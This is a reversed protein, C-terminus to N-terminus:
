NKLMELSIELNGDTQAPELRLLHALLPYLDIVEIVHHKHGAKFSPGFAYFIGHMDMEHPDYGHAGGTFRTSDGVWGISWTNDALILIDLTRPNRGFHLNTPIESSRWATLNPLVSLAALISDKKGEAAQVIIAPNGGHARIVWEEKIHKSLDIYRDPSISAMGHDSLIIFNIKAAHPLKNMKNIFVGLLSDLHTVMSNVEPSEPGFDHGTGDPESFYWMILEPRKAKPLNLWAIVTDIRAENPISEDYKKWYTPQIGQIRAETGVWFFSATTIGQQEATVWIPEGGYFRGDEVTKRDSIRFVANLEEAFFNNMVIGHNDPYLGTALSYVNPFTNTPFVPKFSAAKVGIREISDLVPTYGLEPYDWRFGDMCLVVIYTEEDTTNIKRQQCSAFLIGSFLILILQSLKTINLYKIMKFKKRRFLILM